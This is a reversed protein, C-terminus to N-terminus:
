RGDEGEHAAHDHERAESVPEHGSRIEGCRLMKSGFYPNAITEGTQLWAAGKGGFAMPCYAEVLPQEGEHGYREVLHTIAASLGEFRARVDDLPAGNELDDLAERARSVESKAPLPWSEAPLEAFTQKLAEVAARSAELDDNALAEALELYVTYVPSLAERILVAEPGSEIIREKGASMMSPKARIQMSSDIRFAGHVVILEGEELGSEVIIDDGARPGLVVERGEYTPRDMGPVEVYAVARKGTILVSSAPVVLPLPGSGEQSVLGLSEAPVLDMGCIDCDGPSDKVIEPHMPSVWKGQLARGQVLGGAGLRAAVVARVFMGPKLRGRSNDVNVRVKATRTHEHIFPDIYSIVGEFTQGPLAEVELVVKQGYRLWPLDQEYADLRVWLHELDAIRYIPTGTEVYAGEDVRKDIVVGSAPSTIMVHDNASGRAEIEAVQEETMGWLLLKERASAYATRNSKQLFESAEKENSQLREKAALLEEQATFLEPSYLRVLHDGRNVTVGTYDVYLRDLRGGVWASITRVLTEDFDIKGVMRVPRTVRRREVPAVEVQALAKAAPSMVLRRPDDDSTHALPVLDMGCIPCPGPAPLRIQAHMPCTWIEPAAEASETRASDTTPLDPSTWRGILFVLVVALLLFIWAISRKM